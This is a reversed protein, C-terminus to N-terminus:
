PKTSSCFKNLTIFLYHCCLRDSSNQCGKKRDKDTEKDGLTESEGM